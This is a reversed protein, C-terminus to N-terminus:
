IPFILYIPKGPLRKRVGSKKNKEPFNIWSDFWLKNIRCLFHGAPYKKSRKIFVIVKETYIKRKIKQNIYKYKYNINKLKFVNIIEKCYFGNKLAKDKGNIFLKLAEDYEISLINAVCAVGCGFSDKQVIIKM